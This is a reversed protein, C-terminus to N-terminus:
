EDETLAKVFGESDFYKEIEGIGQAVAPNAFLESAAVEGLTQFSNQIATEGEYRVAEKAEAKCDEILLRSTLQGLRETLALREAEQVAALDQVAPHLSMASFIWRVLDLRDQNSTASVLCRSLDDTYIGAYASHNAFLLLAILLAKKM